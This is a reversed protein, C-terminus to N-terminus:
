GFRSSIWQHNLVKKVDSGPMSKVIPTWKDDCILPPTTYCDDWRLIASPYYIRKLKATVPHQRNINETWNMRNEASWQNFSHADDVVCAQKLQIGWKKMEANWGGALDGGADVLNTYILVGGGNKMYKELAKLTRNLHLQKQGFLGYFGSARPLKDIIVLNFKKLFDYQFTKFYDTCVVEFGEKELKDKYGKDLLPNPSLILISLNETRGGREAYVTPITCLGVTMVLFVAYFIRIKVFSYM